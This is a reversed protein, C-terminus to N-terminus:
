KNVVSFGYKEFIAGADGGILFDIYDQAAEVNKSAKIVAAPYVIQSNVEAPADAAIKVKTTLAADTSYIIGADVNGSEVFGLVHPTDIQLILKEQLQEYIGYAELAQKGYIGSPVFEPDGIAIQKVDEKLLDTFASINLTSNSPVVLVIKNNLLDRRTANIILGGAQLADMQKAAASIFVDAPAGQEIQKQLIGSAAFNATITVNNHKQMYLNNVEQLADTLSAAASVNLEVSAPRACGSIVVLALLLGVLPAKLLLNLKMKRRESRSAYGNGAISNVGIDDPHRSNVM